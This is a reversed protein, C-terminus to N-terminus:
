AMNPGKVFKTKPPIYSDTLRYSKKEQGSERETVLFLSVSPRVVSVMGHWLSQVPIKQIHIKDKELPGAHGTTFHKVQLGPNRPELTVPDEPNKM